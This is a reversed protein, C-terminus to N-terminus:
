SRWIRGEGNQHGKDAREGGKNGGNGSVNDAADGEQEITHDACGTEANKNVLFNVVALILIKDKSGNNKNGAEAAKCNCDAADGKGAHGECSDSSNNDAENEM